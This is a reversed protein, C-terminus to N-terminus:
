QSLGGVTNLIRTLSVDLIKLKGKCYATSPPNSPDSYKQKLEDLNKVVISAAEKLQEHDSRYTSYLEFLEAQTKLSVTTSLMVMADLPSTSCYQPAQRVYYTMEIIRNYEVPDFTPASVCGALAVLMIAFLKRM